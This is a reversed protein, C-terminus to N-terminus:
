THIKQVNHGAAYTELFGVAKIHISKRILFPKISFKKRLEGFLTAELEQPNIIITVVYTEGNNEVRLPAHIDKEECNVRGPARVAIPGRNQILQPLPIGATLQHQIDFRKVASRGVIFLTQAALIKVQAVTEALAAAEELVAPHAEFHQIVASRAAPSRVGINRAAFNRAGIGRTRINRAAISRAGISRVRNKVPTRIESHKLINLTQNLIATESTELRENLIKM